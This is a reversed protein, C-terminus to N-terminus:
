LAALVVKRESRREPQSAAALARRVGIVDSVRCFSGAAARCRVTSRRASWRQTQRPYPREGTAPNAKPVRRVPHRRRPNGPSRAERSAHIREAQRRLGGGRGGRSLLVALLRRMRVVAAPRARLGARLMRPRGCHRASAPNDDQRLNRRRFGGTPRPSRLSAQRSRGRTLGPDGAASPGEKAM